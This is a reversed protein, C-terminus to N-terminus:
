PGGCLGGNCESYIWPDACTGSCEPLCGTKNANCGHGQQCEGNPGCTSTCFQQSQRTISTNSQCEPPCSESTSVWKPTCKQHYYVCAANECGAECPTTKRVPIGSMEECTVLDNGECKPPQGPTCSGGITDPNPGGDAQASTGDTQASTGTDNKGNTDDDSCAAGLALAGLVATRVLLSTVTLRGANIIMKMKPM